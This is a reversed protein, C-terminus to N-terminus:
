SQFPGGRGYPQIRFMFEVHVSKHWDFEACIRHLECAGKRRLAAVEEASVLAPESQRAADIQKALRLITDDNAMFIQFYQNYARRRGGAARRAWRSRRAGLPALRQGSKVKAGPTM